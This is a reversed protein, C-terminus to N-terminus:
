VNIIRYFDVYMCKSIKVKILELILICIKIILKYLIFFINHINIIPSTFFNLDAAYAYM